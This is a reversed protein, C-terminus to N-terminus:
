VGSDKKVKWGSDERVSEPCSEAVHHRLIKWLQSCRGKKEMCPSDVEDVVGRPDEGETMCTNTWRVGVREAMVLMEVRVEDIGTAQGRKVKKMARDVEADGIEEM